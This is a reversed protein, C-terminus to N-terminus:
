PNFPGCVEADCVEGAPCDEDRVCEPSRIPACFGFLCSSGPACDANFFCAPQEVGCTGNLCQFIPSGVIRRCDRNSQCAIPATCTGGVCSSGPECVNVDACRGDTAVCRSVECIDSPSTCDADRECFDVRPRCRGVDCVFGEGCQDDRLCAPEVCIRQECIQTAGCDGDLECAGGQCRGSICTETRRCDLDRLCQPADCRGGQCIFGRDACALDDICEADRCERSVCIGGGCDGDVVCRTGDVCANARCIRGDGCEEDFLCEGGQCVGAVCPFGNCDRADVCAGDPVFSLTVTMPGFDNAFGEVIVAYEGAELDVVIESLTGQGSDDDCALETASDGCARRLFLVTDVTSNSITLTARGPSDVVLRIIAENSDSAVCTSQVLNQGDTTDILVRSVLGPPLEATYDCLVVDEACASDVCGFGPPCDADIMCGVAGICRRNICQQGAACDLDNMCGSAVCEGATCVFGAGCDASVACDPQAICQGGICVQNAGCDLDVRCEPPIM